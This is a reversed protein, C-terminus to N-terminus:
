YKYITNPKRIRIVAGYLYQNKVEIKFKFINNDNVGGDATCLRNVQIRIILSLFNGDELSGFNCNLIELNNIVCIGTYKNEEAKCRKGKSSRNEACNCGETNCNKRVDFLRHKHVQRERTSYNFDDMILVDSIFSSDTLGNIKENLDRIFNVNFSQLKSSPLLLGICYYRYCNFEKNCDM